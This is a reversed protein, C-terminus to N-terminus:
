SRGTIVAETGRGRAPWGVAAASLSSRAMAEYRKLHKPNHTGVESFYTRIERQRYLYVRNRGITPHYGLDALIHHVTEVLPKSYNRFCICAHEYRTGAVTHSAQYVSGDTDMLGRLCATVCHPDECIWSPVNVQHKVKNGQVLGTQCLFEVLEVSSVVIERANRRTKISPKRGFLQGISDVVFDAYEKDTVANLTITVQHDTIGGDGLMIGVFEAFQPALDPKTIQGRMRFGLPAGIRRFKEYAALGGRRRSDATGPNGHREFRRRAGLRSAKGTSWHEPLIELIAPCPIGSIRQLSTVAEHSILYKERQWDRITRPHVSCCLALNETRGGLAEKVTELYQRQAGKAFVVRPM